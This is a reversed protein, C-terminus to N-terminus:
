YPREESAAETATAASMPLPPPENSKILRVIKVRVHAPTKPSDVFARVTAANGSQWLKQAKFCLLLHVYLNPNIPARDSLRDLKAKDAGCNAYAESLVSRADALLRGVEMDRSTKDPLNKTANEAEEVGYPYGDFFM